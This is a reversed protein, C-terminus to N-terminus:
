AIRIKRFQLRFRQSAGLVVTSLRFDRQPHRDAVLRV